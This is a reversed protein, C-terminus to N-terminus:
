TCTYVVLCSSMYMYVVMYMYLVPTCLTESVDEVNRLRDISPDVKEVLAIDIDTKKILCRIVYAFEMLEYGGHIYSNQGTVKLM